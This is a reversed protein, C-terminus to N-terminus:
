ASQTKRGPLEPDLTLPNQTQCQTIDASENQKRVDRTMFITTKLGTLMSKLNDMRSIQNTPEPEPYSHWIVNLM